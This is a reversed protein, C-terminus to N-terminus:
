QAAPDLDSEYRLDLLHKICAQILAIRILHLIKSMISFGAKASRSSTNGRWPCTKGPRPIRGLGAVGDRRRRRKDFGLRRAARWLQHETALSFVPEPGGPFM